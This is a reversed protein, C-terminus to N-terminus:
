RNREFYRRARKWPKGDPGTLRTGDGAYLGAKDKGSPVRVPQPFAADRERLKDALEMSAETMGRQNAQRRCEACEHGNSCKPVENM